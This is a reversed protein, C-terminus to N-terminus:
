PRPPAERVILIMVCEPRTQLEVNEEPVKKKAKEVAGKGKEGTASKDKEKKEQKALYVTVIQGQRLQDFDAPFGPLKGSKKRLADVDKKTWIKPNGKDDFEQPLFNSRVKCGEGARLDLQNLTGKLENQKKVLEVYFEQMDALRTAKDGLMITSYRQWRWLNFEQIKLPNAFPLTIAFDRASNSDFQAIQGTVVQGFLVKEEDPEDKVKPDSKKKKGKPGEDKADKKEDKGDKKKDDKKEEKDPQKKDKDQATVGPLLFLAVTLFCILQALVKM